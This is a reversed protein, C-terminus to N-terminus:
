GRSHTFRIAANQLDIPKIRIDGTFIGVSDDLKGSDIRSSAISQLDQLSPDVIKSHLSLKKQKGRFKSMVEHLVIFGIGGLIILGMITVNVLIDDQYRMMNDPFLSYGCNNFASVANYVAHYFAQGVPFDFVFRVFLLLTGIPKDMRALQWYAWWRERMVALM